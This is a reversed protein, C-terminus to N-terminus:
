QDKREEILGAHEMHTSSRWAPTSIFIYASSFRDLLLKIFNELFKSKRKRSLFYHWADGGQDLYIQKVFISGYICM